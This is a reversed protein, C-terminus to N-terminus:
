GLRITQRRGGPAKLCRILRGSISHVALGTPAAIPSRDLFNLPLGYEVLTEPRDTSTDVEAQDVPPTQSHACGNSPRPSNKVLGSQGGEGRM